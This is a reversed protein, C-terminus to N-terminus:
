KKIVRLPLKYLEVKQTLNSYIKKYNLKRKVFAYVVPDACDIDLIVIEGKKNILLDVTTKVDSKLEFDINGLLKVIKTRITSKVEKSTPTGENAFSSFSIMMAFFLVVLKKM